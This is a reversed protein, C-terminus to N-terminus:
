EVQRIRFLRSVPRSQRDRLEGVLEYEAPWSNSNLLDGHLGRTNLQKVLEILSASPARYQNLLVYRVDPATTLLAEASLALYSEARRRAELHRKSATANNAIVACASHYLVYHGLNPHVLVLGPDDTCASGLDLALPYVELYEPNWLELRNHGSASVAAHATPAVLLVAAAYILWLRSRLWHNLIVALPLVLAVTGFMSFRTQTVLLLAGLLCVVVLALQQDSQQRNQYALWCCILLALPAVFLLPTYLLMLSPMNLQLLGETEMPKFDAASLYGLGELVLTAVSSILVSGIVVLIILNRWSFPMWALLLVMASTCVAIYVHFLSLLGFDFEGQQFPTSPLALLLTMLSLAISFGVASRKELFKGQIWILGLFLAVPVQLLFMNNSVGQTLALCIGLAAAGRVDHKDAAVRLLCYLMALVCTVEAFHHDIRGALHLQQNVPILTFASVAFMAAAPHLRLRWCILAILGANVLMFLPPVHVLFSVPDAGSLTAFLGAGQGMIWDFGWPWMIWAGDPFFGRQDWEVLGAGGAVALMRSAHYFSDIGVIFFSHFEGEPTLTSLVFAVGALGAILWYILYLVRGNGQGEPM